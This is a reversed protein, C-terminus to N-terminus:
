LISQAHASGTQESCTTPFHLPPQMDCLRSIAVFSIDLRWMLGRLSMEPYFRIRAFQMDITYAWEVSKDATYLM